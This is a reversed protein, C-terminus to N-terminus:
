VPSLRFVASDHAAVSASISGVVHAAMPDGTWLDTANVRLGRQLGVDAWSATITRTSNGANLM